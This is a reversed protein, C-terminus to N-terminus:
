KNSTRRYWKMVGEDPAVIESAAKQETLRPHWGDKLFYASKYRRVVEDVAEELSGAAMGGAKSTRVPIHLDPRHKCMKLLGDATLSLGYLGDQCPFLPCGNCIDSYVAGLKGDKMVISSGNALSYVRMPTGFAGPPTEWSTAVSRREVKPILEGMDVFSAKWYDIGPYEYYVLELLKLRVQGHHEALDILRDVQDLNQRMVVMNLQAAIGLELCTELGGLVKRLNGKTQTISDFPGEEVADISLEVMTLGARQLDLAIKTLNWGNTIIRVEPFLGSALQVIQVLERRLTPEGGTFKVVTFGKEALMGLIDSLENLGQNSSIHYSNEGWPPCYTCRFNCDGYLGVRVHPLTYDRALTGSPSYSPRREGHSVVPKANLHSDNTM